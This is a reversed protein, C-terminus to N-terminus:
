RILLRSAVFGVAFAVVLATLPRDEMESALTKCGAKAHTRVQEFLGSAQASLQEATATRGATNARLDALLAAFDQKLAALDASIADLDPTSKASM